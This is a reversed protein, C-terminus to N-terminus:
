TIAAPARQRGARQQVPLPHHPTTQRGQLLQLRRRHQFDALLLGRQWPLQEVAPPTAPTEIVYEKAADDFHGYHM